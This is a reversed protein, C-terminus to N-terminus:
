NKGKSKYYMCWKPAAAPSPQTLSFEIDNSSKHSQLVKRASTVTKVKTFLNNKFFSFFLYILSYKDGLIGFVLFISFDFICFLIYLRSEGTSPPRQLSLLSVRLRIVKILFRNRKFVWLELFSISFENTILNRKDVVSVLPSYPLRSM